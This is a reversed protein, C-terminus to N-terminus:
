GTSGHAPNRTDNLEVPRRSVRGRHTPHGRRDRVSARVAFADVDVTGDAKTVAPKRDDVKGVGAGLRHRVLVAADDNRVVALDVVEALKPGLQLTRPVHEARVAVRLRDDVTVFLPAIPHDLTQVPHERERQEVPAAVADQECAVAIACLREVVRPRALRKEEPGLHLAEELDGPEPDLQALRM